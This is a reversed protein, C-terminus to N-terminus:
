GVSVVLSLATMAAFGAHALAWQGLKFITNDDDTTITRNNM